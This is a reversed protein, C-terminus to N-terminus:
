LGLAYSKCLRNHIHIGFIYFLGQGWKGTMTCWWHCCTAQVLQYFVAAYFCCCQHLFFRLIQGFCECLCLVAVKGGGMILYSCIKVCVGPPKSSQHGDSCPHSPSQLKKATVSLSSRSCCSATTAGRRHEKDIIRMHPNPFVQVNVAVQCTHAAWCSGPQLELLYKNKNWRKLTSKEM